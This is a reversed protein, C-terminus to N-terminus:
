LNNYKNLVAGEGKNVNDIFENISNIGRSITEASLMYHIKSNKILNIMYRANEKEKILLNSIDQLVTQGNRLKKMNLSLLLYNLRCRILSKILCTSETQTKLIFNYPDYVTVKEAFKLGDDLLEICFNFRKIIDSYYEKNM